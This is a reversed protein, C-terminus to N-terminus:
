CKREFNSSMEGGFESEHVIRGGFSVLLSDNGKTGVVMGVVFSEGEITEEIAGISSGILSSSVDRDM